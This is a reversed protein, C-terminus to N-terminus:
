QSGGEQGGDLDQIPPAAPFQSPPLAAAPPTGAFGPNVPQFPLQQANAALGQGPSGQIAFGDSDAAPPPTISVCGGDCQLVQAPICGAADMCNRQVNVLNSGRGSVVVRSSLVLESDEDLVILNTQGINNPILILTSPNILRTTVITPDAVVISSADRDLRLVRATAPTLTVSSQAAALEIAAFLVLGMAVVGALIAAKLPTMVILRASM